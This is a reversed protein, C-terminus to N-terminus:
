PSRYKEIFQKLIVQNGGRSFRERHAEDVKSHCEVCLCELNSEQNNTKDGDKHHCHIYVHDLEGVRLGCRECTYDQKERYRKSTEPWDSTYGFLDVNLANRASIEKLEKVFDRNDKYAKQKQAQIIAQCYKCLPLQSIEKDIDNDDMDIVPVVETNAWRYLKRFQGSNKFNQITKCERIHFRPPGFDALHYFRKYMFGAHKMGDETKLFIGKDSIEVMGKKIDELSIDKPKIERYTKAKEVKYGMKRLTAKLKGFAYFPKKENM